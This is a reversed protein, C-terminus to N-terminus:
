RDKRSEMAVASPKEGSITEVEEEFEAEDESDAESRTDEGNGGTVIKWTVKMVMVFWICLLIQHPFVQHSYVDEYLPARRLSAQLVGLLLTFGMHSWYSNFYGERPRWDHPLIEPLEFAVSWLLKPYIIHRTVVWSILFLGFVGDAMKPRNTYVLLKALPLLIDIFDMTCLIANGVRTWNLVYSFMMLLITVVHHTLMQVHDKRWKELNLTIIQNLWFATQALYYWKALPPLADHPYGIYYHETRLNKYESTQMIYMGLSWFVIYYLLAWGQEAFRTLNRKTKIGARRAIPQLLWRMSADRLFWFFIFYFTILYADDRGKYYLNEDGPKRFSLFIFRHFVNKLHFSPDPTYTTALSYEPPDLACGALIVLLFPLSIELQRDMAWGLARAARGKARKAAPPRTSAPQKKAGKARPESVPTATGNQAPAPAASGTTAVM